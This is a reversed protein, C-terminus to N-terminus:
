KLLALCLPDLVYCDASQFLNRGEGIIQNTLEQSVSPCTKIRQWIVGWRSTYGLASIRQHWTRNHAISECRLSQSTQICLLFGQVIAGPCVNPRADKGSGVSSLVMLTFVRKISATSGRTRNGGSALYMEFGSLIGRNASFLKKQLRLVLLFNLCEQM